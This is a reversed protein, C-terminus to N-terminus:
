ARSDSLRRDAVKTDVAAKDVLKWTRSVEHRGHAMRSSPAEEAARRLTAAELRDEMNRRWAQRGNKQDEEAVVDLAIDDVVVDMSREELEWEDVSEVMASVVKQSLMPEHSIALAM